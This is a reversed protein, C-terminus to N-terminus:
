EAAERVIATALAERLRAREAEPRSYWASSSVRHTRPVARGLVKPRWVERARAKQLLRHRPSDCEIGLGFLGTRPDVIAYDLGFVDTEDASPVPEYGLGRIYRGVAQALGDHQVAGIKSKGQGPALRTQLARAAAVDGSAMKAAYDLYAQLFDRPKHPVRGAAHWDSIESFPMSTVVVIKERARTVAVNLRREGGTQGLVGFFRRFAGRRDRGFTTSFVIWDREDGQVNEVNKVFFGMDEGCQNREREAKLAALFTPDAGAREEIKDTVLDAQKKNFTVIGISPREAFPASWVEALLEVLRDAEEPNTQADYVGDARLVEIPKGRRIEEDPHRAPVSLRNGYFAGNSFGILERYTSRYHIQLTTAPLCGRALQLLDPCATVDKKNWADELASREAETAAEDPQEDIEDDDEEEARGSFFASPPMQKEDGAVVVRRGRFLAPVAQEVPIQSAEDFIVLDFIGPKLPLLRSAVDPGMLWVPRLRMLGLAEGKEFAGRLSMPRPGRLATVVNWDAQRGISAPDIGHALVKRNLDRMETDLRALNAVKRGTEAMDVSLEPHETEIRTKWGLLAERRLTARVVEDLAGAPARNLVDAHPRLASFAALSEADLAAARTRFRQFASLTPLAAMIAQVTQPMSGGRRIADICRTTLEDSFSAALPELARLSAERAAHRRFASQYGIALAHLASGSASEIVHEADARRPCSLAAESDKAAERLSSAIATTEDRLSQLPAPTSAPSLGLTSRLSDLRKRLPRVIVERATAAALASLGPEDGAQGLGILYDRCSKRLRRRRPSLRGFFGVPATAERAEASRIQLEQDSLAAVPEFLKGEAQAPAANQLDSALAALDRAIRNGPTENGTESKFLPFWARLRERREDTMAALHRAGTDLWARHPTPDEIEFSPPLDALLAERAEEAAGFSALAVQFETITAHDVPFPKLAALSSGEFASALWLSAHPGCEEELRAVADAGVNALMRRLHPADIALGDEEIALLEGLMQRYTLGAADDVVHLTEHGRDLDKEVFEIRAATTDRQKRLAAFAEVAGAALAAVQDRLARFIGERDRNIDNVMFLREGLGEADMRKQVVKLAAQKQCVVLATEGRGIVDALINVITQSKGTGPPGEVLLGPALRSALVAADQSPDGEATGFRDREPVPDPELAAPTGSVRLAPDLATGSVPQARLQRLDEVLSQGAFEANFLVASPCLAMPVAPVADKGPLRTLAHGQPEALHGFGDMAEGLRLAPRKLLDEAASRWQAFAEKGLLGELAPNLRVEERGRDFALSATQGAGSPLDISVPWLLIPAIRPKTNTRGPRMDRAHLIPFGLYRGDIGTDRVFTQAYNVLHRLRYAINQDATLADPDIPTAAEGRALIQNLLAEAPRSGSGLEMLDLRPTTKGLVFRVLPGRGVTASLRKEFVDMLKAVYQQRPPEKWQNESVALLTAARALPMRREVRYADAWEDIAPNGCRAFNAIRADVATFIERRSAALTTRLAAEDTPIGASAAATRTAEVLAEMPVFQHLAASILIIVDEDSLRSREVLMALGAHDTDPFLVRRAEREADLNARSTALLAVRARDEDLEVELRQARERVAAARARLRPLWAERGLRELHRPADGTVLVYGQEPHAMLWAPTVIEGRVSLPLAPNMAMMAIAHRLDTDLGDATSASRVLSLIRADEKREALWTATTGNATLTAAEEWHGAEAAALAFTAPDTFSRGALRIVPGAREDTESTDQLPPSPAAGNLWASVERGGWRRNPDRVLLGRLLTRIEGDITDPLSIGRTVVHLRFALDETGAFCAGRTAQELVIMGLSWWDSAASVAGVIAEPASYRSLELPAVQELDFDSLRASGWGTVVLDFSEPDRILVTAPRLDRHRLGAESFSHLARGLEDIATRLREPELWGAAALSGNPMPEVAEFTRGAIRGTALLEPVHDTPLRRLAEHVAPDPESGAHYHVIRAPRGDAERVADYVDWPGTATGAAARRIDRFGEFAPSYVEEIPRDPEPAPEPDSLHDEAIEGGCVMCMQDGPEVPHGNVCCPTSAVPRPEPSPPDVIPTPQQSSGAPRLEEDGIYYHCNECTIESPPRESGCSPCVRVIVTLYSTTDTM